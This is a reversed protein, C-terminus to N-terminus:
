NELEMENGWPDRPFGYDDLKKQTLRVFYDPEAPSVVKLMYTAQKKRTRAPVTVLHTEDGDKLELAGKGQRVKETAESLSVPAERVLEWRKPLRETKYINTKDTGVTLGVVEEANMLDIIEITTSRRKDKTKWAQGVKIETM